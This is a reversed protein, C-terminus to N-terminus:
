GLSVLHAAEEKSVFNRIHIILPEYSLIRLSSGSDLKVPKLDNQLPRELALIVAIIIGSIAVIIRLPVFSFQYAM